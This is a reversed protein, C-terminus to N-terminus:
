VDMGQGRVTSPASKDTLQGNVSIRSRCVFERTGTGMSYQPLDVQLNTNGFLSVGSSSGIYMTDVFLPFRGDSWSFYTHPLLYDDHLLFKM